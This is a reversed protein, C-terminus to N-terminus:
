GVIVISKQIIEDKKNNKVGRFIVKMIKSAPKGVRVHKTTEFLDGEVTELRVIHPNIKSYMAFVIDFVEGLEEAGVSNNQYLNVLYEMLMQLNNWNGLSMIIDEVSTCNEFINGVGDRTQSPLADWKVKLIDVSHYKTKYNELQQTIDAKESKLVKKEGSIKKVESELRSNEELLDVKELELVKKEDSIKNVELKLRSNEELIDVKESKLVEKEASIKKVESKLRSNEGLLDQYEVKIKELENKNKNDSKRDITNQSHKHSEDDELLGLQRLLGVTVVKSNKWNSVRLGKTTKSM